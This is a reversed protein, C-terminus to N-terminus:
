ILDFLAVVTRGHLEDLSRPGEMKGSYGANTHMFIIDSPKICCRSLTESLGDATIGTM